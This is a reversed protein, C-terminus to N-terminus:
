EITLTDGDCLDRTFRGVMHIVSPDANDSQICATEIFGITRFAVEVDDMIERAQSLAGNKLNSFVHAEFDRRVTVNAKTQFNLPLAAQVNPHNVEVIQCAPFHDAASVPELKSSCYLQRDQTIATVITNYIQNITVAM